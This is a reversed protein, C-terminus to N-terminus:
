APLFGIEDTDVTGYLQKAYCNVLQANLDTTQVGAGNEVYISDTPFLVASFPISVELLTTPVIDQSKGVVTSVGGAGDQLYVTIDTAVYVGLTEKSIIVNGCFYVPFSSTNVLAGVRPDNGLVPVKRNPKLGVDVGFNAFLGTEQTGTGADLPLVTDVPTTPVDAGLVSYYCSKFNQYAVGTFPYLASPPLSM